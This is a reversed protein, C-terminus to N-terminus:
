SAGGSTSRYGGDDTLRWTLATRALREAVSLVEWADYHGRVTEVLVSNRRIEWPGDGDDARVVLWTVTM